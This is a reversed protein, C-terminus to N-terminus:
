KELGGRAEGGDVLLLSIRTKARLITILCFHLSFVFLYNIRSKWMLIRLSLDIYCNQLIISLLNKEVSKRVWKVEKEGIRPHLSAHTLPHLCDRTSELASFPPDQPCPPFALTNPSRGQDDAKEELFWCTQLLEVPWCTMPDVSCILCGSDSLFCIQQTKQPRSTSHSLLWCKWFGQTLSLCKWLTLAACLTEQPACLMFLETYLCIPVSCVLSWSQPTLGLPFWSQITMPLVSASASAGISQGCSIFLQSMPFSGSAPFSQPCSFPHCLSFHNSPM